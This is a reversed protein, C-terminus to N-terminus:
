SSEFAQTRRSTKTHHKSHMVYFPQMREKLYLTLTLCSYKIVHENKQIIYENGKFICGKNKRGFHLIHSLYNLTTFLIQFWEQVTM